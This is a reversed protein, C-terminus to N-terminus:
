QVKTNKGIETHKEQRIPKSHAVLKRVQAFLTFLQSFDTQLQKADDLLENWLRLPIDDGIDGELM